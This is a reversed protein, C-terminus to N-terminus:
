RRQFQMISQLPMGLIFARLFAPSTVQHKFCGSTQRERDCFPLHVNFAKREQRVLNTDDGFRGAIRELFLVKKFKPLWSPKKLGLDKLFKFNRVQLHSSREPLKARKVTGLNCAHRASLLSRDAIQHAFM